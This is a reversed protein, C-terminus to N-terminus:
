VTPYCPFILQGSCVVPPECFLPVSFNCLLAPEDGSSSPPLPSPFPAFEAGSFGGGGVSCVPGRDRDLSKRLGSRHRACPSCLSFACRVRPSHALGRATQAARQLPFLHAAGSSLGGSGRAVQAARRPPFLRVPGPLVRALRQSGSGSLGPFVCGAPAVSEISNHLVLFSSGCEVCPGSWISCGPAQATYVPFACVGRYPAFGTHSSCPSHKGCLAIIDTQLM